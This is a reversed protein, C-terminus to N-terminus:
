EEEYQNELTRELQNNAEARAAEAEVAKQQALAAKYGLDSCYVNQKLM